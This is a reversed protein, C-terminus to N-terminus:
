SIEVATTNRGDPGYRAGGRWHGARCIRVAGGGRLVATSSPEAADHVSHIGGAGAGVSWVGSRAVGQAVVVQRLGGRAAGGGGRGAPDVHSGGVARRQVVVVPEAAALVM